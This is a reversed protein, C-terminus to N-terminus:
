LVPQGLAHVATGGLGCFALARRRRAATGVSQYLNRGINGNSPICRCGPTGPVAGDQGLMQVFAAGWYYRGIDYSMFDRLPVEGAAVRQVGYWYFGEDALNLDYRWTLLFWLVSIGFASVVAVSLNSVYQDKEM